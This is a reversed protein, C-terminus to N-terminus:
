NNSSSKCEGPDCGQKMGAHALESNGLFFSRGEPGPIKNILRVTRVRKAIVDILYYLAIPFTLWFYRIVFNILEYCVKDLIM